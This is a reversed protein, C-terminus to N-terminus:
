KSNVAFVMDAEPQGEAECWRRYLSGYSDTIYDSISIRLEAAVSDIWAEEGELEAFWGIPTEDVTVVGLSGDRRYETRYKEYIFKSLYGLGAFVGFGAAADSCEYEIEERSKVKGVTAKGKFTIVVKGGVERVRLLCGQARLGGEATDLIANKEFVRPRDVRFGAAELRGVFEEPKALRVKVETEKGTM